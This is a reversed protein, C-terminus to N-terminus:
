VTLRAMQGAAWKCYAQTKAKDGKIIELVKRVDTHTVIAHPKKAQVFVPIAAIM